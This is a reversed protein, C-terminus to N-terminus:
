PSFGRQNCPSGEIRVTMGEGGAPQPAFVEQTPEADPPLRWALWTALLRASASLGFMAAFAAGAGWRESAGLLSSGIASGCLGATQMALSFRSLTTTREREPVHDVQLVVSCLEFASLAAGSWAQVVLLWVWNSSILWLIPVPVLIASSILISTRLGWRHVARGALEAAVMKGAFFAGLLLGYDASTVKLVDFMFPNFFPFAILMAAQMVLLYRLGGARASGGIDAVLTRVPVPVPLPIDDKSYRSLFWVSAARVLMAVFFVGTWAVMLPNLGLWTTTGSARFGLTTAGWTLGLGLLLSAQLLVTRRGFYRPLISSPIMRGVLTLWPAGGAMAGFWFGAVLLFLIATPGWHGAFSVLRDSSAAWRAALPIWWSSGLALLALPLLSAAQLAATMWVWRRHSGLRRVGWPTFQQLIAAAFMPAPVVLATVQDSFGLDHAFRPLYEQSLGVMLM